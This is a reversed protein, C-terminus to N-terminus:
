SYDPRISPSPPKCSMARRLATTPWPNCCRQVPSSPRPSWRRTWAHRSPTKWDETILLDEGFSRILKEGCVAIEKLASAMSIEVEETWTAVQIPLKQGRYSIDVTRKRPLLDVCPLLSITSVLERRSKLFLQDTLVQDKDFLRTIHADIGAQIKQAVIGEIHPYFLQLGVQAAAVLLGISDSVKSYEGRCGLVAQLAASPLLLQLSPGHLELFQSDPTKALRSKELSVTMVDDVWQKVPAWRGPFKGPLDMRCCFRVADMCVSMHKVNRPKWTLFLRLIGCLERDNVRDTNRLFAILPLRDPIITQAAVMCRIPEPQIEQQKDKPDLESYATSHTSYEARVSAYYCAGMVKPERGAQHSVCDFEVQERLTRGASNRASATEAM